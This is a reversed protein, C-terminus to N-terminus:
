LRRREADSPDWSNVADVVQQTEDTSMSPFLPLSLISKSWKETNPLSLPAPVMMTPQLHDPIPYHISSEVDHERLHDALSARLSPQVKIVFLHAVYGGHWDRRVHQIRDSIEAIGSQLAQAIAIRRLNSDDLRSLASRLFAAQLEDLRSNRGSEIVKYKSEWGYQRLRSVREYLTRSSTALSGGDGLAGLNKTPYHSFSSIDGFAGAMRGGINAGHAQACDELVRVGNSHALKVIREVEPVVQGFLHTLVLIDPRDKKITSEVQDYTVLGDDPSVDM